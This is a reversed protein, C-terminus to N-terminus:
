GNVHAGARKQAISYVHGLIQGTCGAARLAATFEPAIRITGAPTREVRYDHGGFRVYGIGAEIREAWAQLADAEVAQDTRAAAPRAVAPRGSRRALEGSSIAIAIELPDGRRILSRTLRDGTGVPRGLAAAIAHADEPSIPSAALDGVARGEAVALGAAWNGCTGGKPGYPNAGAVAILRGGRTITHIAIKM